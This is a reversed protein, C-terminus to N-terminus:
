DLVSIWDFGTLQARWPVLSLTRILHTLDLSFTLAKKGWPCLLSDTMILHGYFLLRTDTFRPKVTIIGYNFCNKNQTWSESFYVSGEFLLRM